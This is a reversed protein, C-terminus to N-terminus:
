RKPVHRPIGLQVRKNRVSALFRGSRRAIEADSLRGLLRLESSIWRKPTNIFRINTTDNRRSRVSSVSRNLKKALEVDRLTGLM